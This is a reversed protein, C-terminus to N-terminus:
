LNFHLSTLGFSQNATYWQYALPGTGGSVTANISVKDGFHAITKNALAHVSLNGYTVGFSTGDPTIPDPQALIPLSGSTTSFMQIPQSLLSGFPKSPSSITNAANTGNVSTFDMGFEAIGFDPLVSFTSFQSAREAVVEASAKSSNFNVVVSYHNSGVPADRDFLTLNWTNKTGNIM